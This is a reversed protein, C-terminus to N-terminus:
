VDLRVNEDTSDVSLYGYGACNTEMEVRLIHGIQEFFPRELAEFQWCFKMLEDSCYVFRRNNHDM